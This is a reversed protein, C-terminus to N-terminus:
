PAYSPPEENMVVSHSIYCPSSPIAAQSCENPSYMSLDPQTSVPAYPTRVAYSSNGQSILPLTQENLCPASAPPSSAAQTSKTIKVDTLRHECRHETESIQSFFSFIISCFYYHLAFLIFVKLPDETSQVLNIRLWLYTLIKSLYMLVMLTESIALPTLLFLSDLLLGPCIAIFMVCCQIAYYFQGHYFELLYPPDTKSSGDIHLDLLPAVNWVFNIFCIYNVGIRLPCPCCCWWQKLKPFCM